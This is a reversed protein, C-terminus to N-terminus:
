RLSWRIVFLEQSGSKQELRKSVEDLLSDKQKELEKSAADYNRWAEDRKTELKRLAQQKALKEPLNPALRAAKRTEKITEDLEDLEVQLSKRRDEAWRDLKDIEVEFWNANRQTLEELLTNQKITQLEVLKSEVEAPITVQDDSICPLDFFRQIQKEDLAGGNDTFGSLVLYDETELASVSYLGCMLWGSKGNLSDLIAIRKGSNSYDFTLERPPTPLSKAQELLRQALPHGVRYTNVEEVHKGMRYPGPHITEGPFPNTHLTFSYGHENFHAYDKLLSRTLLWLQQNFRDLYDNSQIRVKEVVEQDFNNLLKERADKQGETIEAELERQLQDFEFQIQEVSRCKQYIEAIRKEFDVGSEVAGLIEDSSGFVGDFLRFKENLLEYVRQDAANSKNLFNVVVVDFKQGYRHCRGIRQEIRQPNWPMDYNVVLNCFQLNIGEAAAETAIMIAAEDRFCEVLAARMDATPSGSVRDTGQYKGLWNRYIEKSRADTNTGNFMMVKGAFETNELVNFLYEQTRRSETFIVAKQQLVAAGQNQQAKSAEAFGKRLATLLVEGKSNRVISVALRHFERLEEIEQKLEAIQQPTLRVKEKQEGEEDEDWEDALEDFDEWNEPLDAPPVDVTEAEMAATELRKALSDLTGSIAYTSSALLKRLILTVLARQSAPLAYLKDKQLYASVLDYLRQEDESPVFEQVVAHRNTYKVYELVQKRLTRKCIPKLRERLAEFNVDNGLRAFQAKYSAFDGFAYEDIISVLGYLELLSNQLPTATLLVKPFPNIAQKIANAIKNSAKYVNRLRHAEDIVVLDWNLQRVYPEKTRAFQYSCLVIENQNFPNLNGQKIFENFSKNELIISPLFFKEALEQSWQKRLNAPVIVLLKRKREAWKQSLLLGAEITKGLGVEDALIAGKSFPNRFAFLAAEVQHPNLDVQADALVSALKEVSDSSHRRTLEHAFYRIHHSTLQM